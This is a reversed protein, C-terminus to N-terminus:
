DRRVERTAASTMTDLLGQFGLWVLESLGLATDLGSRHSPLVNGAWARLVQHRLVGVLMGDRSVIPVEDMELWCPHAIAVSCDTKPSLTHKPPHALTALTANPLLAILEKRSIIGALTQDRAVVYVGSPETHERVAQHADQVTSDRFLQLYELDMLTGVTNEGFPLMHELRDRRRRPLASLLTHRPAADLRRLLRAALQDPMSVLLDAATSPPMECLCRVALDPALAAITSAAAEAPVNELVAGIEEAQLRQLSRAADFPHSELYRLILRNETDM